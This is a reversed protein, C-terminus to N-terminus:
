PGCILKFFLTTKGVPTIVKFFFIAKLDPTGIFHDKMMETSM